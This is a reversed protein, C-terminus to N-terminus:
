ALLRDLVRAGVRAAQGFNFVAENRTEILRQRFGEGESLLSEVAGALRPLEDSPVVKGVRARYTEEFAPLGLSEWDPNSIKRPGDVFLVPRETAFAYEYAAGSWDSVMCDAEYFSENSLFSRELTFRPHSSYAEELARVIPLGEPYLPQFFCPHPRVVVRFGADLLSAAADIGGAELLNQRQWSPALLVTRPEHERPNRSRFAQHLRDLKAYGVRHLVPVPQGLREFHATLEREHHPGTCFFDDYHEFAGPRYGVHMSILSHFVYVCRTSSPPRPVIRGLDPVTVMLVRSDLRTLYQGLLHKLYHVRLPEPLGAGGPKRLPDDPDSTLYHIPRSSGTSLERLYDGLQLWSHSDESYVVLPREGAPIGLLRTLSGFEEVLAAGAKWWNM